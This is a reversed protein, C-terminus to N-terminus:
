EKKISFIFTYHVVSQKLEIVAAGAPAFILNAIAAGHVLVVVGATAFAIAQAEFSGLDELHVV